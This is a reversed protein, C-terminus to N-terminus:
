TSAAAMKLTKREKEHRNQKKGSAKMILQYASAAVASAM